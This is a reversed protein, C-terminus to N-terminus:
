NSPLLPLGSHLLTLWKWCSPHFRGQLPLSTFVSYLFHPGMKWLALWLAVCLRSSSSHRPDKFHLWPPTLVGSRKLSKHPGCPFALHPQWRCKICSLNPHEPRCHTLEWFYKLRKFAVKHPLTANRGKWTCRPLLPSADTAPRTPSIPNCRTKKRDSFLVDQQIRLGLGWEHFHHWCM